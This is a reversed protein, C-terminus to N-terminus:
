AITSRTMELKRNLNRQTQKETQTETMIKKKGGKLNEEAM